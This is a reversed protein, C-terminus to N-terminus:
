YPPTHLEQGRVAVQNTITYRGWPSGQIVRAQSVKGADTVGRPLIADGYYAKGDKALFRILRQLRPTLIWNRLPCSTEKYRLSSVRLAQDRANLHKNRCALRHMARASYIKRVGSVVVSFSIPAISKGLIHVHHYRHQLQLKSRVRVLCVTPESLGNWVWPLDGSALAVSIPVHRARGKIVNGEHSTSREIVSM